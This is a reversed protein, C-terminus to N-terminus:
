GGSTLLAKLEDELAGKAEDTEFLRGMHQVHGSPQADPMAPKQRVASKMVNQVRQHGDKLLAQASKLAEHHSTWMELDITQTNEDKADDGCKQTKSKAVGDYSDLCSKIHERGMGLVTDAERLQKMNAESIVRGAKEEDEDVVLAKISDLETSLGKAVDLLSVISRTLAELAYKVPMPAGCKECEKMGMANATGCKCMWRDGDDTKQSAVLATGCGPCKDAGPSCKMGCKPCTVKDDDPTETEKDDKNAEVAQLQAVADDRTEHCGLTKSYDQTVVCWKGDRKVIHKLGDASTEEPTEVLTSAMNWWKQLPTIELARLLDRETAGDPLNFAKQGLMRTVAEPNAPIGVSSYELLEWETITRGTQGKLVVDRSAALTKFGVSWSSLFGDKYLRFITEAQPHQQDIGAFKTLAEVDDQSQFLDLCKAIPLERSQHNFFVRPNNQLYTSYKCGMPLMVEGDRDVLLKSITHRITRSKTDISKVTGWAVDLNKTTM